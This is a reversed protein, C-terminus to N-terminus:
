RKARLSLLWARLREGDILELQHPIYPQIRPENLINPAFRSTTMVMAKSARDLERTFCVAKVEEADVVLGADYAKVQGVIRVSGIGPKIAIIDRGKDGSRPTLVVEPWGDREFAGAIMEELKRWHIRFLFGPDVELHRIIEFWPVTVGVVLQGDPTRGGLSLVEATLLVDPFEQKISPPFLEATSSIAAGTAVGQASGVARLVNKQERWDEVVSRTVSFSTVAGTLKVEGAGVDISFARATSGCAPCPHRDRADFGPSEDELEKGCARCTISAM